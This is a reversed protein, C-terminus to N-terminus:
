ANSRDEQSLRVIAEDIRDFRSLVQAHFEVLYASLQLGAVRAEAMQRIALGITLVIGVFSGTLGAVAGVVELTGL